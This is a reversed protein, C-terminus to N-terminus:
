RASRKLIKIAAVHIAHMYSYRHDEAQSVPVVSM